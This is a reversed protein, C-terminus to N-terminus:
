PTTSVLTWDLRWVVNPDNRMQDNGALYKQYETSLGADAMWAEEGAQFEELTMDTLFMRNGTRVTNSNCVFNKPISYPGGPRVPISPIVTTTNELILDGQWNGTSQLHKCYLEQADTIAVLEYEYPTENKFYVFRRVIADTTKESCLYQEYM